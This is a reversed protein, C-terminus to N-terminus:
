SEMDSNSPLRTPYRVLASSLQVAKGHELRYIVDAQVIVDPRHSIVIVPHTRSLENMLETIIAEAESDLASTPEDFIYLEPDRLLERALALRQRQGGSLMVAGRGLPTNYGEPMASIFEHAHARTAAQVMEPVAVDPRGLRLNEAVTGNFLQPEQALYSVRARLSRVDFDRIDRGNICVRGADPERLRVILDVLTTKGSGSPGLVATLGIPEIKMQLGDFIIPRGPPQLVIDEFVIAGGIGPFPASGSVQEPPSAIIDHIVRLSPLSTAINMLGGTTGALRLLVLGFLAITPLVEKIDMRLVITMFLIAAAGLTVAVLDMM